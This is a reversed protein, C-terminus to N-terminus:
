FSSLPVLLLKKFCFQFKIVMLNKWIGEFDQLSYLCFVNLVHHGHTECLPWWKMVVCVSPKMENTKCTFRIVLNNKIVDIKKNTTKKYIYKVSLKKKDQLSRNKSQALGLPAKQPFMCTSHHGCFLPAATWPYGLEVSQPINTKL